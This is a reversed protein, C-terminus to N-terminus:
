QTNLSSVIDALVAAQVTVHARMEKAAEENDGVLIAKLIRNHERNSVKLRALSQLRFRRYPSLRNRLKMTTESLFDNHSGRYIIEHFRYNADFYRECANESQDNAWKTCDDESDRLAKREALTMREASLSACLASLEAMVEFMQMIRVLPITAVIAGLRPRLQILDVAALQLMAERIPTRSVDFKQCLEAEDLRRGPPLEGSVILKALHRYISSSNSLRVDDIAERASQKQKRKQSMDKETVGLKAM